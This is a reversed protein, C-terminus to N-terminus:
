WRLGVSGGWCDGGLKSGVRAFRCCRRAPVAGAVVSCSRVEAAQLGPWCGPVSAARLGCSWILGDRLWFVRVLVSSRSVIALRSKVWVSCRADLELSRGVVLRCAPAHLSQGGRDRCGDTV